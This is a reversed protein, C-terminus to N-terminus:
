VSAKFSLFLTDLKNSLIYRGEGMFQMLYDIDNQNGFLQPIFLIGKGEMNIKKLFDRIIIKQNELLEKNKM